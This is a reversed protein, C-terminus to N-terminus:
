IGFVGVPLLVDLWNNFAHFLGFGAVVSFLAVAWWRKEGLAPLLVASFIMIALRFGLWDWLVAALSACGIIAIARWATDGRPFITAKDADKDVAPTRTVQVVILACLAAGILSLYFPFFGSGPGLKDFLSLSRAEWLTVLCILFMVIGTFQWGRRMATPV